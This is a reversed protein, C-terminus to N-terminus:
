VEKSGKPPRGPGRKKEQEEPDQSAKLAALMQSQFSAMEEVSYERLRHRENDNRARVGYKRILYLSTAMPLHQPTAFFYRQHHSQGVHGFDAVVEVGPRMPGIVVTRQMTSTLLQIAEDQFAPAMALVVELPMSPLQRKLEATRDAKNGIKRLELQISEAREVIQDENM